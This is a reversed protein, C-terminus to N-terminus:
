PTVEYTNPDYLAGMPAATVGYFLSNWDLPSPKESALKGGAVSLNDRAEFPVKGLRLKEAIDDHTAYASPWAYTDGAGSQMVRMQPAERGM